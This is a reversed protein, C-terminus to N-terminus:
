PTVSLNSFQSSNLTTDSGSSVALGIYCSTALTVTTSGTAIWATGDISKYATIVNGVRVLRVWTNPATGTGVTGTASTGGTTIRNVTLYTNSGSMGMFVHKSNPALTERIMVGVRSLTGTNQLASIKATIEGDGSLTQYSFSLKDSTAGLAGSGSQSFTGGSYSTSGAMMGSGISGIMWPVPLGTVTIQLGADATASFSDTARVVFSNLGASGVPPTGSLAGSSAVALWAPGSVKSYTLSDGADVDTAKGALTQGTYAVSESAGGMVTPNAAFVPASNAPASQVAAMRANLVSAVNIVGTGSFYADNKNTASSATSGYTGVAQSTGGLTLTSVQRTGSFALNLKAGTAVELSGQGLAGVNTCAITGGSIITTGSYTNSAGSLTLTSSSGVKTLGGSGSIVGSLTLSGTTQLNITSTGSLNIPGSWADGFGNTAYLTASNLTLSNAISVRNLWLVSGSNLTVPGSGLAANQQLGIYLSGANVTTGGSYTNIGNLAVDGSGNKILGGAGSIVGSLTMAGSSTGGLVTTANLALNNSVTVSSTSNQNLQPAASVNATLALSNGALTVSSGGFNLQNVLFGTNLNHTATYSGAVNFNLAYNSQGAAVPNGSTWSGATGWSNTTATNWTFPVSPVPGVNLVGSGSFWTDNKNTASSTTSGYTGNAQATGGLSLTAAQTIGAFPLNLKAGTALALAGKGLAAANTCALTGASVTTTGTYSNSTGSLTLTSSNGVKTLGGAGSIVGSLTLNGTSQLDMIATGALSIPGSWSDGFGNTAVLTASNLSLSNVVSVRNLVLTTGPNLSVLGSGLASNKQLGLYLMGATITTGGTYSNTGNLYVDGTCSKILGGSGFVNGSLNMAGSSTGSLTTTANLDLNNAVTVL